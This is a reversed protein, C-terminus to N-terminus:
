RTAETHAAPSLSDLAAVDSTRLSFEGVDANAFIRERRASKPIVAVGHEIHWRIVVQAPSVGLRGAIEAVEPRDLVGDKLGSYGELVVGRERHGALLSADFLAPGWKIQNVAPLVGSDQALEDILELSYNSVGIDRVLGQARAAVLERWVGLRLEAPPPWHILWLDIWEAGLERISQELVPRPNGALEPPLKTTLFLESRPLGSAALATGIEAENGYLTATDIHRYGAQLACAVADICQRGSLRWTGFGLLPM